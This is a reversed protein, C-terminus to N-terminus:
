RDVCCSPATGSPWLMSKLEAHPSSQFSTDLRTESHANLVTCLRSILFQSSITETAIFMSPFFLEGDPTCERLCKVTISANGPFSLYINDGKM